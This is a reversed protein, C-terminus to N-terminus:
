FGFSCSPIQQKSIFDNKEEKQNIFSNSDEEEAGFFKELLRVSHDYIEKNNHYQLNELKEVGGSQEIILAYENFESNNINKGGMELMNELGDLIVRIVRQDPSSLLDVMPSICDHKVLYNIQKQTGGSTANSIAWTAEKKIDMESNKMLNILTPMLNADIVAQIQDPNGATINSITWCAEKKHSKVSSNLLTLLCPLAGCNIITQTQLDDGTAINGIVRLAPTRVILEPHMLLETIRQLIGLDIINQIREHSGDSIYSFTWCIDALIGPDEFFIFKQLVPFISRLYITKPGPKGRCLNSIAWISNRLFSIRNSSFLQKLLPELIGDELVNNRCHPSDGAINGLAWISQEKINEIPNELLNVLLKVAGGQILAMTQESNGSAVNTLIWAAEFQIQPNERKKLYGIFIPILNLKIIEDIPPNKQISLLKRIEIIAEIKKKEDDSLLIKKLKLLNSHISVEEFYIEESQPQNLFYKERRKKMISEERNLNRAENLVEERKIRINEEITSINLLNEKQQHKNM